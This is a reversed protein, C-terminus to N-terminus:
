PRAKLVHTRMPYKLRGGVIYPALAARVDAVFKERGSEPLLQVARRTSPAGTTQGEMFSEFSAYDTLGDETRIEVSQFGGRRAADRIEGTDSFTCAKRAATVDVKQSELAQVIAHHGKNFEIPAWLTAVLCGSPKLVRHIEAFGAVRDPFFQLGQLCLAVDFAGDPLPMDLASACHWEMPTGEAKALRRAVEVVGADMDVGVIKGSRGVARAAVRAGIGTGCAVDLVHAGAQPAAWKVAYEAWVVFMGPVIHKEYSEGATTDVAQNGQPM